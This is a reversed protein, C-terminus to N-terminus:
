KNAGSLSNVRKMEIREFNDKVCAQQNICSQQCSNKNNMGGIYPSRKGFHMMIQDFKSSENLSENQADECYSLGIFSPFIWAETISSHSYCILKTSDLTLPSFGM